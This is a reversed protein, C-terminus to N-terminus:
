RYQCHLCSMCFLAMQMTHTSQCAGWSAICGIVVVPHRKWHCLTCRWVVKVPWLATLNSQWPNAERGTSQGHESLWPQFLWPVPTSGWLWLNTNANALVTGGIAQGFTRLPLQWKKRSAMTYINRGGKKRRQLWLSASPPGHSQGPSAHVLWAWRWCPKEWAMCLNMTNTWPSSPWLRHLLCFARRSGSQGYLATWQLHLCFNGACPMSRLTVLWLLTSGLVETFEIINLLPMCVIKYM